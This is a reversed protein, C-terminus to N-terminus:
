GDVTHDDHGPPLARDPPGSHFGLQATRKKAPRDNALLVACWPLVAGGVVFVMALLISVRYTAAAAIVCVGRMAMMIAYRKRRRDFEADSSEPANTILVAESAHTRRM